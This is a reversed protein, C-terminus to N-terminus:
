GKKLGQERESLKRKNREHPQENATSDEKKYRKQANKMAQYKRAQALHQPSIM